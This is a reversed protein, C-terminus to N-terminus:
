LPVRIVHFIRVHVGKPYFIYSSEIAFIRGLLAHVKKKGKGKLVLLM